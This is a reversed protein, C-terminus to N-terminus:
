AFLLLFNVSRVLVLYGFRAREIKLCKKFPRIFLSNKKQPTINHSVTTLFKGAIETVM